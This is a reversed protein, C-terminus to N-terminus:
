IRLATQAVLADPVSSAGKIQQEFTLGIQIEEDLLSSLAREIKFPSEDYFRRLILLVNNTAHNETQSFRQFYSIRSM